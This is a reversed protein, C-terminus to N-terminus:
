GKFKESEQKIQEVTPLEEVSSANNELFAMAKIYPLYGKRMMSRTIDSKEWSQMASEMSEYDEDEEDLQSNLLAERLTLIDFHVEQINKKLEPFLEKITAIEWNRQEEAGLPFMKQTYAKERKQRQAKTEWKFWGLFGAKGM